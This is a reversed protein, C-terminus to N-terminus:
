ISSIIAFALISIVAEGATAGALFHSYGSVYGITNNVKSSQFKPRKDLSFILFIIFRQVEAELLAILMVPPCCLALELVEFVLGLYHESRYNDHFLQFM